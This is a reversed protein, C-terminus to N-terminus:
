PGSEGGSPPDPEVGAFLIEARLVAGWVPKRSGDEERPWHIYPEGELFLWKRWVNRRYRSLIRYNQAIWAPRTSGSVGAAFSIASKPSLKHLLSLETGWTWGDSKEEITLSHSWRLLTPPALWRELDVQNSEGFGDLADWFATATFRGLINIGVPQAYQYRTRVFADPPIKVRVGAGVDLISNSTRLVDYVLETSSTRGHSGINLAPNGPDEPIIANPDGSSESSFILHWRDKMRPLRLSARVTSRLSYHEEEDWQLEGKWRLFSAPRETVVMRDEGFFRDFWVAADFLNREVRSHTRDVWGNDAASPVTGTVNDSAPPVTRTANDAAALPSGAPPGAALSIGAALSLLFAAAMAQFYLWCPRARRPPPKM